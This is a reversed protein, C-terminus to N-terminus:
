LSMIENYLQPCCHKSLVAPVVCSSLVTLFSCGNYSLSFLIALAHCSLVNTSLWSLCGHCYLLSPVNPVPSGPFSLRILDTQFLQGSMVAQVPHGSYSLVPCCPGFFLVPCRMAPNGNCSLWPTVTIDPCRLCSLRFLDTLVPCLPSFPLFIVDLVFCSPCSLWSLVVPVPCCPCYLWTLDVRIPLNPYLQSWSLWSLAAPVLYGHCSLRSLDTQFFDAQCILKFLDAHVPHGSCSLFSLVDPFPCVPCFLWQVPVNYFFIHAGV